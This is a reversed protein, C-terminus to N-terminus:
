FDKDWEDVENSIAAESYVGVSPWSVDDGAEHHVEASYQEGRPTCPPKINRNVLADFDFRPSQFFPHARFAKYGKPSPLVRDSSNKQLLWRLMDVTAPDLDEPINVPKKSAVERFIEGPNGGDFPLHGVMFEYLCVGMAWIDASRGYGGGLIMEVAMFHPTGLLTYCKENPNALKRATGFDILKIFGDQDLLVNEPKLDRYVIMKEHIYEFTVLLSGLYFQAQPKDLVDLCDLADLLEGGTVLETLFYVCNVDKFSRVLKLCFPHDILQLVARERQVLNRDRDSLKDRTVCKLAYRTGSGTHKVLKVIGYGGRGIVKEPVLDSFQLDTNLLKNRYAMFDLIGGHLIKLFNSKMLVCFTAEYSDVLVTAARPEDYLLAREGFYAPQSLKTVFNKNKSIAVDGEHILFFESGSDGEKIVCEGKKKTVLTMCTVLDSIQKESLHRFIFVKRVLAVRKQHDVLASLTPRDQLVHKHHSAPLVAVRAGGPGATLESLWASPRELLHDQGFVEFSKIVAQKGPFARSTAYLCGDIVVLMGVLAPHELGDEDRALTHVECLDAWTERFEASLNEFGNHGARTDGRLVQHISTFNLFKHLNRGFVAALLEDHLTLLTTPESAVATTNRRHGDSHFCLEGFSLGPTAYTWAHKGDKFVEIAGSKIVLYTFGVEGDRFLVEDKRLEQFQAKSALLALQMPLVKKFALGSELLKLKECFGDEEPGAAHLLERFVGAEVAWFCGRRNMCATHQWKAQASTLAEAGLLQGAGIDRFWRGGKSLAISSSEGVIYLHEVPTDERFIQEGAHIQFCRFSQAIVEPGVGLANMQYPVAESLMVIDSLFIPEGSGLGKIVEGVPDASKSVRCLQSYRRLASCHVELAELDLIQLEGQDSAKRSSRISEQRPRENADALIEFSHPAGASGAPETEEAEAMAKGVAGPGFFSSHTKKRLRRHEEKRPHAWGYESESLRSVRPSCGNCLAKSSSLPESRWSLVPTTVRHSMVDQCRTAADRLNGEAAGASLFVQEMPLPASSSLPQQAWAPSAPPRGGERDALCLSDRTSACPSNSTWCAPSHRRSMRLCPSGTSTKRAQCGPQSVRGKDVRSNNFGIFAHGTQTPGRPQRRRVPVRGEGTSTYEPGDEADNAEDELTHSVGTPKRNRVSRRSVPLVHHDPDQDDQGDGVDNSGEEPIETAEGFYPTRRHNRGQDRTKRGHNSGGRPPSVPRLREMTVDVDAEVIVMEPGSINFSVGAGKSRRRRVRGHQTNKPSAKVVKFLTGSKSAPESGRRKPIAAPTEPVSADAGTEDEDESAVGKQDQARNLRLHAQFEKRSREAEWQARRATEKAQDLEMELREVQIEFERSRDREEDLLRNLDGCKRRLREIEACQDSPLQSKQADSGPEPAPESPPDLTAPAEM